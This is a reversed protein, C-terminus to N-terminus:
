RCWCGKRVRCWMWITGNRVTFSATFGAARGGLWHYLNFQDHLLLWDVWAHRAVHPTFFSLDTMEIKYRCSAATCSGEYRGWAGWRKMLRQADAWTSQYLRIEHM